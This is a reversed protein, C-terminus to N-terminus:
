HFVDTSKANDVYELVIRVNRAADGSAYNSTGGPTNNWQYYGGTLNYNEQIMEHVNTATNFNTYRNNTDLMGDLTSNALNLEAATPVRMIFDKGDITIKKGAILNLANVTKYTAGSMIPFNCILLGIDIKTFYVTAASLNTSSLEATGATGFSGLTGLATMATTTYTNAIYDGVEMSDITTKMSGNTIPASM